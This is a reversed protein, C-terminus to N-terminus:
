KGALGGLQGHIQQLLAKFIRPNGAVIQGTDLFRHGGELDGVLGGAEQVLLAGAASDWPALGLEFYGDLRGAAVYALDLAASGARRIERCRGFLDGLAALYAERYRPHRFPFGTGILSEELVSAGRVRIRRDNLRAGDGKSATFIEQRLPDYVVGSVLRGQQRLAISIAYHPFGHLYNTTGDLPDIVWEFENEGSRGSEEALIAHDPYIHRLTRIIEAEAQLDVESVLDHAGKQSVKLRELRDQYRLLVKGAALAARKAITLTPHM